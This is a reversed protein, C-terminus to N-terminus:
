EKEAAALTSQWRALDGKCVPPRHQAANIPSQYVRDYLEKALELLADHNNVCRCILEANPLCANKLKECDDFVDAIILTMDANCISTMKQGHHNTEHVRWPRPTPEMQKPPNEAKPTKNM